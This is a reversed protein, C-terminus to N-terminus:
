FNSSPPALIPANQDDEMKGWRWQRERVGNNIISMCIYVRGLFGM